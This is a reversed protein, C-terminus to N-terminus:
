LLRMRSVPRASDSYQRKYTPRHHKVKPIRTLILINLLYKAPLECARFRVRSNPTLGRSQSEIRRQTMLIKPSKSILFPHNLILAGSRHHDFSIIARAIFSRLVHNCSPLVSCVNPPITFQERSGRAQFCSSNSRTLGKHSLVSPQEM